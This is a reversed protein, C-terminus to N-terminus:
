IANSIHLLSPTGDMWEGAAAKRDKAGGGGGGKKKLVVKTFLVVCDATGGWIRIADMGTKVHLKGQKSM